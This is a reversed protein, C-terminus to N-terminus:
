CALRERANASGKTRNSSVKTTAIMGSGQARIDSVTKNLFCTATGQSDLKLGLINLHGQTPVSATWLTGNTFQSHQGFETPVSSLPIDVDFWENGNFYLMNKHEQFRLLLEGSSGGIMETVWNEGNLTVNVPSIDEWSLCDLTRFVQLDM